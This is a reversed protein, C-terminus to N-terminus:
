ESQAEACHAGREHWHLVMEIFGGEDACSSRTSLRGCYGDQTDRDDSGSAVLGARSRRRAGDFAQREREGLAAPKKAELAAIEGEIRQVVQLAENWRRELEGAVLRNTPISRTMNDVRTLLRTARRSFRLHWNGRHLQRRAGDRGQTAKVAADIGLAKLDRVYRPAWPM